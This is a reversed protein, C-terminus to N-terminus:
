SFYSRESEVQFPKKIVEESSIDYPVFINISQDKADLEFAIADVEENTRPDIVKVDYCLCVALMTGEDIEAGIHDRIVKIHDVTNETTQEYMAISSDKSESGVSVTFPAVQEKKNLRLEILDFAENYIKELDKNM